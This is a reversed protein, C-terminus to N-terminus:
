LPIQPNVVITFRELQTVVLFYSDVCSCVHIPFQKYFIVSLFIFFGIVLSSNLISSYCRSYVMMSLFFLRPKSPFICVLSRYRGNTRERRLNSYIICYKSLLKFHQHFSLSYLFTNFRFGCSM